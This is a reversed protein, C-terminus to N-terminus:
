EEDVNLRLLNEWTPEYLQSRDPASLFLYVSRGGRAACLTRLRMRTGDPLIRKAEWGSCTMAGRRMVLPQRDVPPLPTRAESTWQDECAGRLPDSGNWLIGKGVLLFGRVGDPIGATRPEVYQALGYPPPQQLVSVEWGAPGSFTLPGEKRAEAGPPRSSCASALALACALMARRACSAGPM